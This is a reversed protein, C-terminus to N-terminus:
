GSREGLESILPSGVDDSEEAPELKGRNLLKEQAGHTNPAASMTQPVGVPPRWSLVPTIFVRVEVIMASTTDPVRPAVNIRM